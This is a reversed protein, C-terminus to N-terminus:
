PGENWYELRVIDMSLTWQTWPSEVSPSNLSTLDMSDMLPASSPVSQGSKKLQFDARDM